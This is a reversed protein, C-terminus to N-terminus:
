LDCKGKYQESLEDTDYATIIVYNEGQVLDLNFEYESQNVNEINKIEGNLDCVIKDITDDDTVKVVLKEGDKVVTIVPKKSGKITKTIENQNDSTDIAKATLTREGEKAALEIEFSTQGESIEPTMIDDESWQYSVSKIGKDDTVILKITGINNGKVIEIVPKNEDINSDFTFERKAYKTMNGNRDIVSLNITNTGIPLPIKEEVKSKGNTDITAEEGNNWSYIVKNIGKSYEVTVLVSSGDQVASLIPTGLVSTDATNFYRNYIGEGAIILAFLIIVVAFFRVVPKIGTDAPKGSKEFNLIQNM